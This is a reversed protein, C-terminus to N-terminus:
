AQYTAMAEGDGVGFGSAIFNVSSVV